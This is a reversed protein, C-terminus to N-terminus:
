QRRQQTHTRNSAYKGAENVESSRGPQEGEGPPTIITHQGNLEVRALVRRAADTEDTNDHQNRGWYQGTKGRPYLSHPARCLCVTAERVPIGHSM